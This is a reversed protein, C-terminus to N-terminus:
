WDGRFFKLIVPGQDLAAQLHVSNGAGNDLTFDPAVSGKPLSNALIDTSALDATAKEMIAVTEAPAIKLFKNKQNQLEDTLSM